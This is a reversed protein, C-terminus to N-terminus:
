LQQNRAGRIVWLAMDFLRLPTEQRDQPINPKKSERWAFQIYHYLCDRKRNAGPEDVGVALLVQKDFLPVINPYLFHLLTTMAPFAFADRLGFLNHGQNDLLVYLNRLSEMNRTVNIRSLQEGLGKLGEEIREQINKDIHIRECVNNTAAPQSYLKWYLIAEYTGLRIRQNTSIENRVKEILSYYLFRDNQPRDVIDYLYASTPDFRRCKNDYRTYLASWDFDENIPNRMDSCKDRVSDNLIPEM